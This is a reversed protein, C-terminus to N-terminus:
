FRYGIGVSLSNVKAEAADVKSHDNLQLGYRAQAFFDDSFDYAFGFALQFNLSTFDDGLLADLADPLEGSAFGIQPGALLSFNDAVSYSILANVNFLNYTLDGGGSITSSTYVLEPQFSFADSMEVDAFLGVNFGSGSDGDVVANNTYGATVGFGTQATVAFFSCFALAFFLKKM